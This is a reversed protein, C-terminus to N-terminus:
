QISPGKSNPIGLRMKALAKEQRFRARNGSPALTDLQLLSWFGSRGPDVFDMELNAPPSMPKMQGKKYRSSRRAICACLPHTGKHIYM